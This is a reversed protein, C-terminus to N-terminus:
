CIFTSKKKKKSMGGIIDECKKQEKENERTLISTKESGPDSLLSKGRREVSTRAEIEVANSYHDQTKREIRLGNQKNTPTRTEEKEFTMPPPSTSLEGYMLVRLFFIM